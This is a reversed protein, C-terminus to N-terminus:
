PVSQEAFAQTGDPSFEFRLTWDSTGSSSPAFKWKQAADLALNAFYKSPGPSDITADTVKGSPDISVKIGVRVTGRITDLSKQPM